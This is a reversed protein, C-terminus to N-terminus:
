PRAAAPREKVADAKDDRYKIDDKLKDEMEAFNKVRERLQDQNDRPKGLLQDIDEDLEKIKASKPTEDPKPQKKPTSM